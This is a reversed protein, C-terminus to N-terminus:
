KNTIHRALNGCSLHFIWDELRFIRAMLRAATKGDHKDIAIEMKHKLKLLQFKVKTSMTYM